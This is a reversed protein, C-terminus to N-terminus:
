MHIFINNNLIQVLRNENGEMTQFHKRVAKPNSHAFTFSGAYTLVGSKAKYFAAFHTETNITVDQRDTKFTMQM